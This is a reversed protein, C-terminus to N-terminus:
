SDAQILTSFLEKLYAESLYEKLDERIYSTGRSKWTTYLQEILRYIEDEDDAESWYPYDDGLLRRSESKKPSLLLILKEANICHPFKGPLFPSFDAIAELIINVSAKKQLTYVQNFPMNENIAIVQEYDSSYRDMFERAYGNHGIHVLKAPAEPYKKLFREFAKLLVFPKRAQLLNGAHLLTFNKDTFLSGLGYELPIAESKESGISQHPIVIGKEIYACIKSGMWEMLLKSPFAVYAAKEGIRRMFEEKKKYGPEFWTYPKPYFHMPYPDHIYAIWKKQFEPLKLVAHHPRFSGGKSLTLVLDPKFDIEKLSRIISNRDNFLTFSFGFKRELPKHLKLKLLYRLYRESRSLFFLLSRRKEAISYCEIGELQLEKRTYHYVTVHYGAKRLNRILAVNAKSGSSDEVDISEAVVLIKKGETM